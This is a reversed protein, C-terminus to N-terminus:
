DNVGFYFIKGRNIDYQFTVYMEESVNTFKVKTQMKNSENPIILFGDYTIKTPQFKDAIERGIVNVQLLSEHNIKSDDVIDANKEATYKMMNGIFQSTAELGKKYEKLLSVNYLFTDIYEPFGVSVKIREIHNKTINTGVSDFYSMAVISAIYESMFITSAPFELRIEITHNTNAIKVHSAGSITQLYNSDLLEKSPTTESCSYIFLLLVVFALRM